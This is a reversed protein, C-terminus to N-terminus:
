PRDTECYRGTARGFSMPRMGILKTRRATKGIIVAKPGRVISNAMPPGMARRRGANSEDDELSSETLLLGPRRAPRRPRRLQNAAAHGRRQAEVLLPAQDGGPAGARSLLCLPARLRDRESRRPSPELPRCEASRSAMSSSCSRIRSRSSHNSCSYVEGVAAGVRLLAIVDHPVVSAAETPRPQARRM